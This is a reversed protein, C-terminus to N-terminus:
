QKLKSAVVLTFESHFTSRQEEVSQFPKPFHYTRLQGFRDSALRYGPLSRVLLLLLKTVNDNIGSQM